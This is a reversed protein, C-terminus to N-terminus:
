KLHGVEANLEVLMVESRQMECLQLCQAEATQCLIQFHEVEAWQVRCVHM